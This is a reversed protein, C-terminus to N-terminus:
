RFYLIETTNNVTRKCEVCSKRLTYEQTFPEGLSLVCQWVIREAKRVTIVGDAEEEDEPRYVDLYFRVTGNDTFVYQKKEPFARTELYRFASDDVKFNIDRAGMVVRGYVSVSQFPKSIRVATPLYSGSANPKIHKSLRKQAKDSVTFLHYHGLGYEVAVFFVTKSDASVYFLEQMFPSVVHTKGYTVTPLPYVQWEEQMIRVEGVEIESGLPFFGLYTAKIFM